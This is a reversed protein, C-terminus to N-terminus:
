TEGALAARVFGSDIARAVFADLARIRPDDPAPLVMAQEVRALTGPLVRYAPDDGFARELSARVGAVVDGRGQRFEEFSEAPTGTKELRAHRLAKSLHLEYASGISTLVTLGARDAEAPDDHPFDARAAYTAEITHYPRTFSIREARAPDIALFGVDWAGAQADDFVRGAGSYVVPELPVGIEDALRRALAPSVGRLEGDRQQVLARNGTNIAARLPGGTALTSLDDTM